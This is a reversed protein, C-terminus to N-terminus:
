NKAKASKFKLLATELEQDPLKNLDKKLWKIDTNILARPIGARLKGLFHPEAVITLTNYNGKRISLGLSRMIRKAFDNAVIEHPATKQSESYRVAGSRGVSKLGMGPKHRALSKNRLRGLPNKMIKLTSFQKTASDEIVFKAEVQNAIVYWHQM